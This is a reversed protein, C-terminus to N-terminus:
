SRGSSSAVASTDGSLLGVAANDAGCARAANQVIAGLAPQVDTASGSIVRLIEAVATQRELSATTENFLRVNEIAIAAQNAFTQALEVQRQTFPVTERRRMVIVGLAEGARVLPAALVTRQGDQM